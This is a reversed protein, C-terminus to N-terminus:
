VPARDSLWYGQTVIRNRGSRKAAYLRSDASRILSEVSADSLESFSACGASITIRIPGNDHPIAIRMVASRLREALTGAGSPGEGRLVVAFEEGGYRALIDENRITENITRAMQVLVQDGAQHGYTDNVKKFHDVDFLVLSVDRNHRRAYSLEAKLQTDLHERNFAGTLADTVSAEFLKRLLAEQSQDTQAYRFAANSGFQILDGDKLSHREIRQGNVFTGNASNTDILVFGEGDPLLLAHRRSVGEDAVFLWAEATRGIRCADNVMRVVKGLGSGKVRVLLHRDKPESRAVRSMSDLTVVRTSEEEDADAMMDLSALPASPAERELAPQTSEEKGVELGAPAFKAVDQDRNQSM